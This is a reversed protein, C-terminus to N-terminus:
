TVVVGDRTKAVAELRWQGVRDTGDDLDVYLYYKEEAVVALDNKIIAEHEGTTTDTVATLAIPYGGTVSIEVPPTVQDTISTIKFHASANIDLFVGGIKVESILIRLTNGVLLLLEPAAM